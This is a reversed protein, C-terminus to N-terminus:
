RATVVVRRWKRSGGTIRNSPLLWWGPGRLPRKVPAHRPSNRLQRRWCSLRSASCLLNPSPYPAFPYTDSLETSFVGTEPAKPWHSRLQDTPAYHFPGEPVFEPEFKANAFGQHRHSPSDSNFISIGALVNGLFATRDISLTSTRFDFLFNGNLAVTQISSFRGTAPSTTVTCSWVRLLNRSYPLRLPKELQLSIIPERQRGRRMATSFPAHGVECSVVICLRM